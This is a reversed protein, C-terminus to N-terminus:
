QRAPSLKIEVRRNKSRGERTLNSALPVADGLGRVIIRDDPIGKQKLVLAVAKARQMSIIKNLKFAQVPSFGDPISKDAHGEVIVKDLSRANILPIINDIAKQANAKPRIEGPSFSGEGLVLLRMPGHQPSRKEVITPPNVPALPKEQIKPLATEPSTQRSQM